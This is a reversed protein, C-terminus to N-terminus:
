RRPIKLTQTYKFSTYGTLTQTGTTSGYGRAGRYAGTGGTYRMTGELGVNGNLSLDPKMDYRFTGRVTGRALFLTRTGLMVWGDLRGRSTTAGAGLVPDEVFGAFALNFERGPVLVPNGGEITGSSKITRYTTKAQAVGPVTLALAATVVVVTRM